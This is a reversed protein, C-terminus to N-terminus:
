NYGTMLMEPFAKSPWRDHMEALTGEFLEGTPREDDDAVNFRVKQDAPLEGWEIPDDFEDLPVGAVVKGIGTGSKGEDALIQEWSEAAFVESEEGIWFFRVKQPLSAANTQQQADYQARAEVYHADSCFGKGM